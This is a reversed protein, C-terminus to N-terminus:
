KSRTLNLLLGRKAPAFREIAYRVTTRPIQPGNERLYRELRVPDAKGAERLMWGVAKQILDNPDRHLTRAVGYATQLVDGRRVLPILGVASARRVWLHRDRSWGAVQPVLRPHAVLLPGILAGCMADTTAWNAAYGRALWRKWGRLLGPAFTKRYRAVVEIAVTKVELFRDTILADACRMADDVTWAPHDRVVSKAFTRVRDTGVNYFGLDATGRFYRSADFSGAPRALRALERKAARAAGLPSTRAGAVTGSGAKARDAVALDRGVRM